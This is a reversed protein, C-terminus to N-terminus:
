GVKGTNCEHLYYNTHVNAKSGGRRRAHISHASLQSTRMMDAPGLDGWAECTLITSTTRLSLCLYARVCHRICLVFCLLADRGAHAGNAAMKLAIQGIKMEM